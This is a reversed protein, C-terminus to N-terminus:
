SNSGKFLFGCAIIVYLFM